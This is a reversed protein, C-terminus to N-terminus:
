FKSLGTLEESGINDVLWDAFLRADDSAGAHVRLYFPWPAEIAEPVLQILRGSELHAGLLQEWGLVAGIHNEAARVSILYNNLWYGPGVPATSGVESLWDTWDTWHSDGSQSHILPASPLNFINNVEHTQAFKETGMALIRGRFLIRVEDHEETPDGYRISLDPGSPTGTDQAIQSIAIGPYASWFAALRQTLWLGSVATTAVISVGAQDQRSRLRTVCESITEFGRQLAVFLLAGAETLEVGRYKRTFLPQALEQELAKIRHSVAAPTVNLESSALKFSLHRATAEFCALDGLSPLDYSRPM